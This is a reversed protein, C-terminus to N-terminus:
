FIHKLDEVISLRDRQIQNKKDQVRLFQYKDRMEKALCLSEVQDVAPRSQHRALEKTLERIHRLLAHEDVQMFDDQSDEPSLFMGRDQEAPLVLSVEDDLVQDEVANFDFFDPKASQEEDQKYIVDSSALRGRIKLESALMEMRREAQDSGAGNLGNARKWDMFERELDSTDAIAIQSLNLARLLEKQRCEILSALGELDGAEKEGSLLSNIKELHSQYALFVKDAIQNIYKQEQLLGKFPAPRASSDTANFSGWKILSSFMSQMKGKKMRSYLLENARTYFSGRRM